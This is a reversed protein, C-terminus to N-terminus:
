WVAEYAQPALNWKRGYVHARKVERGQQDHMVGGAHLWALLGGRLNKVTIGRESMREAFKGSRYSITCYAVVEKGAHEQLAAVYEDERLAGPLMSVAQEEADRIDVFVVNELGRSLLTEASVDQVTPFEKAYGQYMGMVREKRAADDLEESAANHSFVALGLCIALGVATSWLAWVPIRYQKTKM